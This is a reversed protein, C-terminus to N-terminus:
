PACQGFDFEVIDTGAVVKARAPYYDRLCAIQDVMLVLIGEGDGEKPMPIDSGSNQLGLSAMVSDGSTGVNPCEQPIVIVPNTGLGLYRDAHTSICEAQETTLRVSFGTDQAAVVSGILIVPAATLVTAIHLRRMM